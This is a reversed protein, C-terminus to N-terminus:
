EQRRGASELRLRTVRREEDSRPADGRVLHLRRTRQVSYSRPGPIRGRVADQRCGRQRQGADSARAAARREHNRGAGQDGDPGEAADSLFSPQDEENEHRENEDPWAHWGVKSTECSKVTIPSPGTPPLCCCACSRELSSTGNWN